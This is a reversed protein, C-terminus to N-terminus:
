SCQSIPEYSVASTDATPVEDIASSAETMSESRTLPITWFCTPVMVILPKSSGTLSKPKPIGIVTIQLTEPVM